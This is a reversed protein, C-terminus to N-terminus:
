SASAGGAAGLPVQVWVRAGGLPSADFLHRGGLKRARREMNSLGLGTGPNRADLGDDPPHVPWGRGDDEVSLTVQDAQARIRVVCLRAGSHRIVNSLAERLLRSLQLQVRASWVCGPPPDNVDWQVKLGAAHLRSVGEARWDALVEEAAVSQGAMGKVSQRMDHLAERALQATAGHGGMQVLTMLKAGLDDHLDAAIRQREAQAGRAQAQGAELGHRILTVIQQCRQVDQPNFLRTGRMPLGLALAPLAGVSPVKLWRGHAEAEVRDGCALVNMSQPQFQKDWLRQWRQSIVPSPAGSETALAVVDPLVDTLQPLASESLRRWLWQRLPFYVWGALALAVTLAYRGNWPLALLLVVDLVVVLLGGLFWLWARPWWAELEFLRLRTVLPVFGLFVLSFVVMGYAIPLPSYVDVIAYVSAVFPVTLTLVLLLGLWKIQARQMPQDRSRRWQVTYLGLLLVAPALNPLRFGLSISDVWELVDVLMFGTCWVVLATLLRQRNIWRGDLPVPFRWLLLCLGMLYLYAAAHTGWHLWQFSVAEQTLLRSSTGALVVMWYGYALSSLAYWNAAGDVSRYVWVALGVSLALLATCWSVWFRPGLEGWTKGQVVLSTTGGAHEVSLHVRGAHAQVLWTWLAVHENYFIRQDRYYLTLGGTEAVLLASLALRHVAGEATTVRLASVGSLPPLHPRTPVATVGNQPSGGFRYGTSPESLARWLGMAGILLLVLVALCLRLRVGRLNGASAPSGAVISAMDSRSNEFWQVVHNQA